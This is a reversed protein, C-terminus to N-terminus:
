LIDKTPSIEYGLEGIGLINYFVRTALASERIKISETKIDRKKQIAKIGLDLCLNVLESEQYYYIMEDGPAAEAFYEVAEELLKCVEKISFHHILHLYKIDIDAAYMVDGTDMMIHYDLTLERLYDRVEECAIDQWLEFCFEKDQTFTQSDWKKIFSLSEKFNQKGSNVNIWFKMFPYCDFTFDEREGSYDEFYEVPSTISPILMESNHLDHKMDLLMRHEWAKQIPNESKEPWDQNAEFDDMDLVLRLYCKQKSTLQESDYPHYYDPLCLQALNVKSAALIEEIEKRVTGDKELSLVESARDIILKTDRGWVGEVSIDWIEDKEFEVRYGCHECRIYEPSIEQFIRFPPFKTVKKGGCKDCVGLNWLPFLKRLEDYYYEIGFVQRIRSEDMGMNHLNIIALVSEKCFSGLIRHTTEFVIDDEKLREDFVTKM